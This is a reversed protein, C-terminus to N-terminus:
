EAEAIYRNINDMDVQIFSKTLGAMERYFSLEAEAIIVDCFRPVWKIIHDEMFMKEIKLYHLVGKGDNKEWAEKEKSIIKQMLELEVSIHDPMSRDSEKYELGLSEVFKKVEVTSAGWHKGWDGDDREHHISEHPSIHRGPGLYLRTYEIALDELLDEDPKEYFGDGLQVGLDSLVEAFRSDKIRGLIDLTLEKRYVRALFGYIISRQFADKSMDKLEANKNM